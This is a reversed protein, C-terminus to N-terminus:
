HSWASLPKGRSCLAPFQSLGYNRSSQWWSNICLAGMQCLGYLVTVYGVQHAACHQLIFWSRIGYAVFNCTQGQSDTGQHTCHQSRDNLIKTMWKSQWGDYQGQWTCWKTVQQKSVEVVTQHSDTGSVHIGVVLMYSRPIRLSVLKELPDSNQVGVDTSKRYM